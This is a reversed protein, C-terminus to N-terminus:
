STEDPLLPRVAFTYLKTGAQLTLGQPGGETGDIGLAAVDAATVTTHTM